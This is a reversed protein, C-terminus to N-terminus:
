APLAEMGTTDDMWLWGSTENLTIANTIWETMPPETPYVYALGRDNSIIVVHPALNEVEVDGEGVWRLSYGLTGDLAASMNGLFKSPAEFMWAGADPDCCHFAGSQWAPACTEERLLTDLYRYDAGLNVQTWSEDQDDFNSEVLTASHIRNTSAVLAAVITLFLSLQSFRM